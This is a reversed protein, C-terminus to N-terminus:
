LSAATRVLWDPMFAVAASELRHDVGTLIMLGALGFAAGLAFRAGAGAMLAAGRRAGALRGLGYGLALLAGAAGLAYVGMSLMAFPLSGGKAALIFAAALTPGACPAWVLALLAGAGAQGLLGSEPLRSQLAGGLRQLPALAAEMRHALAPFLLAMGVLVMLAAAIERLFPADGFDVGLSALFGGVIAFTAALGGALALPARPDQARAGAVVIPALPLVCPSLITLVGAGFSLPLTWFAIM